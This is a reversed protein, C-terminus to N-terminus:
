LNFRFCHIDLSCPNNVKKLTGIVTLLNDDFSPYSGFAAALGHVEDGKIVSRCDLINLNHSIQFLETLVKHLLDGGTGAQAYLTDHYLADAGTLSDLNLSLLNLHQTKATIVIGHLLFALCELIHTLMGMHTQTGICETGHHTDAVIHCHSYMGIEMLMSEEIEM